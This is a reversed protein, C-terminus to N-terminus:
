FGAPGISRELLFEQGVDPLVAPRLEGSELVLFYLSPDSLDRDFHFAIRTPGHENEALIEARLLGRDVTTGTRLRNKPDRYLAEFLSRLMVGGDEVELELTRPGTRRLTHDYPAISLPRWSKPTPGDLYAIIVPLYVSVIYDPAFVLITEKSGADAVVQSGATAQARRSTDIVMTQILVAFIPALVLHVLALFGGTGVLLWNRRARLSEHAEVLVVALAAALGVGPVLLMRDSPFVAAVPLFSLASGAVLWRLGNNVTDDREGRRSRLALFLAVAAACGVAIQIPRLAPAAFWFDASFGAIGSALLAPVGTVFSLLFEGPEELPHHYIGSGSSGYGLLRYTVTYAAAMGVIPTLRVFRRRLDTTPEGFLTSAVFYALVSLGLESGMLGVGIGLLAIFLGPRWQDRCWRIWAWLGFLMPALAVLANRNSVWAVPMVHVADLAFLLFALVGVAGPLSRRLVLGCGVLAAAWWLLSHVHFAFAQRGFISYDMKLLLDSLPRFHEARVQEDIWWPYGGERAIAATAEEDNVFFPFLTRQTDHEPFRGEIAGLYYFDDLLFGTWLSPVFLLVGVTLIVAHRVRVRRQIESPGSFHAVSM